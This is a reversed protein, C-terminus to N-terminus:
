IWKEIEKSLDQFKKERNTKHFEGNSLFPFHFSPIGTVSNIKLAKGEVDSNSFGVVIVSAGVLSFSCTTMGHNKLKKTIYDRIDEEAPYRVTTYYVGLLLVNHGQLNEEKISDIKRKLSSELQSIIERNKPDNNYFLIPISSPSSSKSKTSSSVQSHGTSYEVKEKIFGFVSENDVPKYSTIWSYLQPVTIQKLILLDKMQQLTPDDSRNSDKGNELLSNGFTNFVIKRNFKTAVIWQMLAKLQADGRFAGAGWDSNVNSRFWFHFKSGTSVWEKTEGFTKFGAQLKKM